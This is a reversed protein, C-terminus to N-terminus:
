IFLCMDFCFLVLSVLRWIPQTIPRAFIDPSELFPRTYTVILVSGNVDKNPSGKDQLTLRSKQKKFEKEFTGNSFYHNGIENNLFYSDDNTEINDHDNFGLHSAKVSKFEEESSSDDEQLVLRRRRRKRQGQNGHNGIEKNPLSLDSRLPNAKKGDLCFKIGKQKKRDIKDKTAKKVRLRIRESKRCPNPNAKAKSCEECIWIVKEKENKPLKEM